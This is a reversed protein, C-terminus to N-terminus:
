VALPRHMIRVGSEVQYPGQIERTSLTVSGPLWENGHNGVRGWVSLERGSYDRIVIELKDVTEGFMHYSFQLCRSGSHGFNVQRSVLRACVGEALESCELYVYYGDSLFFRQTYTNQYSSYGGMSISRKHTHTHACALAYVRVCVCVCVCTYM